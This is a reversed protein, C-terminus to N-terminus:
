RETSDKDNSITHNWKKEDHYAFKPPQGSCRYYSKVGSIRFPKQPAGCRPCAMVNRTNFDPAPATLKEDTGRSDEKCGGLVLTFAMVSAALLARKMAMGREM